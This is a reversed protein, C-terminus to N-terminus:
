DLAPEELAADPESELPNEMNAELALEKIQRKIENYELVKRKLFAVTLSDKAELGRPTLHYLYQLKNRSDRFRAIKILGKQALESVCYNIKGLSIGIERAMQRQTFGANRSLVKLLRYRIEQQYYSNM